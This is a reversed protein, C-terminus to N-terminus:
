SELPGPAQSPGCNEFRRYRSTRFRPARRSAHACAKTIKPTRQRRSRDLQMQLTDAGNSGCRFQEGDARRQHLDRQADDHHRQLILRNALLAAISAHRVLAIVDVCENGVNVLTSVPGAFRGTSRVAVTQHLECVRIHRRSRFRMNIQHKAREGVGNAQPDQIDDLRAFQADAIENFYQFERLWRNRPMERVQAASAQHFYALLPGPIEILERRRTRCEM